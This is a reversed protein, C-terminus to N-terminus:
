MTGSVSYGHSATTEPRVTTETPAVMRVRRSDARRLAVVVLMEVVVPRSTM